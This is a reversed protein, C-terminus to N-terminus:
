GILAMAALVAKRHGAFRTVEGTSEVIVIRKGRVFIGIAYAYDQRGIPAALELLYGPRGKADIAGEKVVTYGADQMRKKLAERWFALDAAPENEETRVRYTVGDSSVARFDSLSEFTAFGEPAVAEFDRCSAGAGMAVLALLLATTRHHLNTRM